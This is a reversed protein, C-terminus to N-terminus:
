HAQSLSTIHLIKAAINAAKIYSAISYRANKQAVKLDAPPFAGFLDIPNAQCLREEAEDGHTEVSWKSEEEKRQQESGDM